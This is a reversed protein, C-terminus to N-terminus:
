TLDLITRYQVKEKGRSPQPQYGVRHLPRPDLEDYRRVRQGMTMLRAEARDYLPQRKAVM